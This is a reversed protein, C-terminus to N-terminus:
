RRHKRAKRCGSVHLLQHRVIKDGNQGIMTIDAIPRHRRKSCLNGSVGLPGHSGAVINLQFRSVPADPIADFNTSLSTGGPTTVRGVLDISIDGRLAVMLDPLPRGPHKVFFAGGRLPDKLLPTWAVASGAKAKDCRAAQYEALTCARQVVNLLASIPPSRLAVKVSKLNSQGPKQTLVTRLPTSRGLTMHGKGGVSLSLKPAFKLSKCGGVQFRSSLTATAGDVSTAIGSVQQKSCNTPAVMFHPKDVAVRVSRVNLPVGKIITPFPDSVVSLQATRPDVHISQRVVVRGLNFPGAIADVVVALGYPGGKYGTTLYVRGNTVYFPNSGVGAGVTAHGILSGAPCNGANAAADSCQVADKVRALLGKPTDVTLSRFQEDDDSRSLAVHFPSSSGAVPNEIGARWTPSFAPGKCGSVLFTSTTDVTKNNWAVFHATTTKVGCTSPSALPARPGTKFHLKLSDFPLQPNNDFTTTIQGTSPDLRISGPLKIDIGDDDSRVEIAMRFMEGSQPDDSNQTRLFVNGGVPHDLLPSHLTVTGIKSPDPCTSVGDKGLRLEDDTCAQLGDASSPNISMGSPLTVSTTRLDAPALGDPGYDEDLTVEADVGSASKPALTSPVLSFGPRFPDFECGTTGPTSTSRSVITDPHQYTTMDVSWPLADSCSTPTRLFPVRPTVLSCDGLAPDPNFGLGAKLCIGRQPNHSPDGPVGWLTVVVKPLPISNPTKTAVIDIGNDIPRLRATLTVVISQYFFGFEAPAGHPPVINYLPVIDGYALEAVGIQSALPCSPIATGNGNLDVAQTTLQPATCREPTATPNGVFGPPVHVTVDKFSETPAIVYLNDSPFDLNTRAESPLSITTQLEMPDTGAQQPPVGGPADTMDVGLQRVSFPGAPGVILSLTQRFDQATGGGSVEIAGTLTGSAGADVTTATRFRVQSGPHIGTVDVTCDVEQGVTTCTPDAVSSASTPNVPAVGAPFTYRLVLDGSLPDTGTNLVSVFMLMGKEATVFDPALPRVTIAPDALATGTAMAGLAIAVALSSVLRNLLRIRKM